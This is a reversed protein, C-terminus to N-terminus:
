QKIPVNAILQRKMYAPNGEILLRQRLNLKTKVEEVTLPNAYLTSVKTEVTKGCGRLRGKKDYCSSLDHGRMAAATKVRAACCTQGLSQSHYSQSPQHRAKSPTRQPAAFSKSVYKNPILARRGNGDFVKTMNKRKLEEKIEYKEICFNCYPYGTTPVADPGYSTKRLYVGVRNSNPVM